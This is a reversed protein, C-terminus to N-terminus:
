QALNNEIEVLRIRAAGYDPQVELAEKYSARASPWDAFAEYALGTNYNLEARRRGLVAAERYAAIAAADGALLCANGLNYWLAVIHPSRKSTTAM